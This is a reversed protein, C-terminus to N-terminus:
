LKSVIKEINLLAERLMRKEEDTVLTKCFIDFHKQQYNKLFIFCQRISAGVYLTNIVVNRKNIHKICPISSTVFKHPGRRVRIIAVKTHENCYKTSFGQRITAVGFDGYLQQIKSIIAESLSVDSFKTSVEEKGIEKLNIVLYSFIYM